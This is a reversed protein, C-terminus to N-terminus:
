SSVELPVSVGDTYIFSVSVIAPDDSWHANIDYFGPTIQKRHFTYTTCRFYFDHKATRTNQEYFGLFEEGEIPQFKEKHFTAMRPAEKSLAFLQDSHAKDIRHNNGIKSLQLPM